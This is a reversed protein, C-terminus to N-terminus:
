ENRDRRRRRALFIIFGLALLGVALLLWQWNDTAVTAVDSVSPQVEDGGGPQAPTSQPATQDPTDLVPATGSSSGSGGTEARQSAACSDVSSCQYTEGNYTGRGYAQAYASVPLILLVFCSFGAILASIKHKM